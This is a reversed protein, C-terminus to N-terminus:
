KSFVFNSFLTFGLFTRIDYRVGKGDALCCRALLGTGCIGWLFVSLEGGSFCPCSVSRSKGGDGKGVKSRYGSGTCLVGEWPQFPPREMVRYVSLVIFLRDFALLYM